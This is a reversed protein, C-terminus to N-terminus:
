IVSIKVVSNTFELIYVETDGTMIYNDIETSDIILITAGSLISTQRLGEDEAHIENLTKSVADSYSKFRNRMNRVTDSIYIM